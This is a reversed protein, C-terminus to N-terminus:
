RKWKKLLYAALLLTVGTFATWMGIAFGTFGARSTQTAAAAHKTEKHHLEETSATFVATDGRMASGSAKEIHRIVDRSVPVLRGLSDARMVVTEWTEVRDLTSAAVSRLAAVSDAHRVSVTDAKARCGYLLLLPIIAITKMKDFLPPKHGGGLWITNCM